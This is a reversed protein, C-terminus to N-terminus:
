SKPSARNASSPTAPMLWSPRLARWSTAVASDSTMSSPRPARPYVILDEAALDRLCLPREGLALRHEGPLAVVLRENRLLQRTVAPDEFPIRGFGVDIRGEKLATMQEITLLETLVLEM